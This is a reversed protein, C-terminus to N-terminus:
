LAAEESVIEVRTGDVLRNIGETVVLEGPAIGSLIEIGDLAEIGVEVQRREVTGTAEDVVFAYTGAEGPQLSGLPLIIADPNSAAEIWVYVRGGVQLNRVVQFDRISVEVGRGGPTQTPSVAFVQGQTGQQRAIDLLTLNTAGAAEAESVDQELVVYARQGSRVAQAEDAQLEIEVELSQPEVVVIPATEAVDDLDGGASNLRQADWYEGERINIYAVIGDIPSVLQTDERDVQAERLRAQAAEIAAEASRIGDAAARIDQEAVRLEARALEADNREVDRETESVAGGALLREMRVLETEQLSLDSQAKDFNAQAQLLEAEAQDRQEIAVNLDAEATDIAVIQTRDDITAVVEGQAIPDGERLDRGDVQKIFEINGNDQFTLVRRRVSSVLGEDFVWAQALGTAAPTVRVPIRSPAAEAQTDVPESQWSRYVSSGIGVLGLLVAGCALPLLYRRKNTLSRRNVAESEDVQRSDTPDSEQSDPAPSSFGSDNTKM